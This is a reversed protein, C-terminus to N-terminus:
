VVCVGCVVCVSRVGADRWNRNSEKDDKEESSAWEMHTDETQDSEQVGEGGDELRDVSSEDDNRTSM